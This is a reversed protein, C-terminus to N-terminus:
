TRRFRGGDNAQRDAFDKVRSELLTKPGGCALQAAVGQINALFRGWFVTCDQVKCRAANGLASIAHKWM